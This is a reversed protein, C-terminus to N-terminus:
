KKEPETYKKKIEQEKAEWKELKNEQHTNSNLLEIPKNMPDFYGVESNYHIFGKGGSANIRKQEEILPEYIAKMEKHYQDAAVQTLKIFENITLVRRTQFGKFGNLSDAFSLENPRKQIFGHFHILKEIEPKLRVQKLTDRDTQAQATLGNM